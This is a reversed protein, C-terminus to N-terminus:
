IQREGIRHAGKPVIILFRAGSQPVGTETVQIGTISLIDRVLFLGLGTNKGYGREFIREKEDSPIGAGNDEYTIILREGDRTYSIRIATVHKGHRISNDLLNSFVKELMPDAYIWLDDLDAILSMGDPVQGYPLVTKVPIWQPDNTGLHQYVRTFEIAAQITRASVEVKRIYDELVPDTIEDIAIELYGFIAHLHNLIDHRTIDSLLSLQRNAQRLADEGRVRDTIDRIAAVHVPRENWTFVRGAIEVPFVERDKKLHYQLPIIVSGEQATIPVNRNEEESAYLKGIQMSLLEEHTYGYMDSAASNAELIAGSENEILFIAENGIEILEQYKRQSEVLAAEAEKRITVDDTSLLIAPMGEFIIRKGISQVQIHRGTRTIAHYQALYRDHGQAVETFDHMVDQHSRPDIFQIVPTGILHASEEADVLQYAAHNAFLITGQLDLIIIGELSNEVLSRFKAESEILAEEARKRATVDLQTVLYDDGLHVGSIELVRVTGDKRTVRYEAPRIDVGQSEASYVLEEWERVVQSRYAPDPYAKNWWDQLTPIDDNTYGTTLTFRKNCYTVDTNNHVISLSIPLAEMLNLYRQRSAELAREAQIRDSIDRTIGRLEITGTEENTYYESIVETWITSGDRCRQEIRDTYFKEGTGSRYDQMRAEYMSFLHHTTEPSFAEEFPANMVEEATYGRLQLVSPSVYRFRVTETDLIWVVDKLNEALIRYHKESRALAEAARMKETVDNYISVIEGTPIRFVFNEYWNEYKEDSYVKAPYAAPEGTKWVQQFIPILGYEDIAPRLDALSRGIVDERNKGELNLAATNFDVIFYDKGKEGENIVRYVAAGSPMTDFLGRMLSESRSLVEESTALEQYNSRLEEESALLEEYAAAIDDKMRRIEQEAQRRETIDQVVGTIKQGTGQEDPERSAISAIIRRPAGDAPIVTYEVNYEDGRTILNVLYEHVTDREVICQEIEEVTIAGSPRHYGFLRLAMESGWLLGTNLDYEWSGTKGIEQARVLRKEHLRILEEDKKQRTVDLHLGRYGILTGAADRMQSYSSQLIVERGDKHRYYGIIGQVSPQDRMLKLIEQRQQERFRLDFLDYFYRIGVLEQPHYGLITAVITSSYRYLGDTDTEWIWEGADAAVQNFREESERLAQEDKRLKVALRIKHALEAFQPIPSGGKQLYFDAGNEIAEIVVEERGRGTFLIFPIRPYRTRIEKLLQIGNMQPMQYDSIIADYRNQSMMELAVAGSESVEVQLGHKALFKQTIELLGPEDDVYLVALDPESM